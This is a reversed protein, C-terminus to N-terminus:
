DNEKRSRTTKKEHSSSFFVGEFINRYSPASDRDATEKERQREANLYNCACFNPVPICLATSNLEGSLFGSVRLYRYRFWEPYNIFFHLMQFQEIATVSYINFPTHAPQLRFHHSCALSIAYFIPLFTILSIFHVLTILLYISRSNM